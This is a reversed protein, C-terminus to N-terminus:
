EALAKTLKDEEEYAPKIRDRFYQYHGDLEERSADALGLTSYLDTVALGYKVGTAQGRRRKQRKGERAKLCNAYTSAKRKPTPGYKKEPNANAQVLNLRNAARVKDSVTYKRKPKEPKAPPPSNSPELMPIPGNVWQGMSDNCSRVM